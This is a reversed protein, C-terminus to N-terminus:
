LLDRLFIDPTIEPAQKYDRAIDWFAATNKEINIINRPKLLDSSYLLRYVQPTEYVSVFSFSDWYPVGANGKFPQINLLIRM